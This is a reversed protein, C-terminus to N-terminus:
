IKLLDNVKESQFLVIPYTQMPYQEHVHYTHHPQVIPLV